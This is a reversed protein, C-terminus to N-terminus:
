GIRRTLLQRDNSAFGVSAYLGHASPNAREVELHIARVGLRPAQEIAYALAARGWGRSRARPELYLEDVFADRGGYELSFGFMLALYGQYPDDATGILWLRGVSPSALLEDLTRRALAEDFPYDQSQNFARLLPLVRPIDDPRAERFDPASPV